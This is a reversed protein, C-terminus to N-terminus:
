PNFITDALDVAFWGASGVPGAYDITRLRWEFSAPVDGIVAYPVFAEVIRGNIRFPIPTIIAEGGTLLPRRDILIGAFATGDWSVYAIM